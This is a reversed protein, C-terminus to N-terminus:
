PIAEEPTEEVPVITALKKIADIVSGTLDVEKIEDDKERVFEFMHAAVEDDMKFNLAFNRFDLNVIPRAQNQVPHKKLYQIRLPLLKESDVYLRVFDPIYDPLVAKPDDTLNFVEKRTKLNWRGVLVLRGDTETKMERVEGFDMGVQLQSMLTQLGGVGLSQLSKVSTENPVDSLAEVIESINRRTLQQRPGNKWKTWLISGDSVRELSGTPKQASLDPPTNDVSFLEQDKANMARGPFINYELRMRNGSAQAYRGVAQFLQGTLMVSQTIDCSLTEANDLKQSIQDFVQDATLDSKTLKPTAEQATATTDAAPTPQAPPEQAVSVPSVASLCFAIASVALATATRWSTLSQPNHKM